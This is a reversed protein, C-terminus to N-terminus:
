GGNLSVLYISNSVNILHEVAFPSCCFGCLLPSFINAM